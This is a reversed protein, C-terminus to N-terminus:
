QLYDARQAEAIAADLAKEIDYQTRAVFGRNLRSSVCCPEENQEAPQAGFAGIPESSIDAAVACHQSRQPNLTLRLATRDPLSMRFGAFCFGAGFRM